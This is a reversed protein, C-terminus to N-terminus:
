PASRERARRETRRGLRFALVGVLVILAIFVLHDPELVHAALARWGFDTHDGPHASAATAGLVLCASPLSSYIARKM